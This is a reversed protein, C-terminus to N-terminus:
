VPVMLIQSVLGVMTNLKADIGTSKESTAYSNSIHPSMRHVNAFDTLKEWVQAIPAKILIEKIINTM